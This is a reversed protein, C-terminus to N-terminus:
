PRRRRRRRRPIRRRWEGDAAVLSRVKDSRDGRRIAVGFVAVGGAAVGATVFARRTWNGM